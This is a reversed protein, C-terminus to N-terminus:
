VEHASHHCIYKRTAAALESVPSAPGRQEEHARADAKYYSQPAHRGLSAPHGRFVPAYVSAATGLAPVGAAGRAEAKLPQLPM